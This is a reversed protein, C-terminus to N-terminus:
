KRRKAARAHLEQDKADAVAIRRPKYTEQYKERFRRTRLVQECKKSCGPKDKRGAWYINECVPCGRIRAVKVGELADALVTRIFIIEGRENVGLRSLALGFPLQLNEVGGRAIDRLAEGGKRLVFHRSEVERLTEITVPGIFKQFPLPLKGIKNKYDLLREKPTRVLKGKDLSVSPLTEMDAPISNVLGILEGLKEPVPTTRLAQRSQKRKM